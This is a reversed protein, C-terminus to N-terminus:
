SDNKRISICIEYICHFENTFFFLVDFDSIQQIDDDM